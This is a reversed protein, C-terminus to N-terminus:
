PRAGRLPPATPTSTLSPPPPTTLLTSAPLSPPPDPNEVRQLQPPPSKVRQLSHMTLASPPLSSLSPATCRQSDPVADSPHTRALPRSHHPSLGQSNGNSPLSPPRHSQLHPPPKLKQPRHFPSRPPPPPHRQQSGTSSPTPFTTSPTQPASRGRKSSTYRMAAITRCPPASIFPGCGM